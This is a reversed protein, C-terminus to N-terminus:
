VRAFLIGAIQMLLNNGWLPPDIFLAFPSRGTFARFFYCSPVLQLPVLFKTLINESIASSIMTVSDLIEWMFNLCKTGSVVELSDCYNCTEFQSTAPKYPKRTYRVWSAWLWSSYHWEVLLVSLTSKVPTQTELSRGAPWMRAAIGNM